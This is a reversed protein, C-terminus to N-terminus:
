LKKLQETEVMVTDHERDVEGDIQVTDQPSVSQGAWHKEKIEVVVSGSADKFMYNKGGLHSEINGRLTVKTDDPLTKAQAATVATVPGSFGGRQAQTAVTNGTFGGGTAQALAAGALVLGPLVFTFKKM